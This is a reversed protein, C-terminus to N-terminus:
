LKANCFRLLIVEALISEILFQAVYVWHETKKAFLEEVRKDQSHGNSAMNSSNM